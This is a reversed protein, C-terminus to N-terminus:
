LEALPRPLATRDGLPTDPTAGALETYLYVNCVAFGLIIDFIQLTETM